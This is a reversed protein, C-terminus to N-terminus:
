RGRRAAVIPLEYDAARPKAGVIELNGLAIHRRLARREAVTLDLYLRTMPDSEDDPHSCLPEDVAVHRGGACLGCACEVVTWRKSGESGHQQGTCALFRATLRVRKGPQPRTALGPTKHPASM